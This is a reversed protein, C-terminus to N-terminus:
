RWSQEFEAKVDPKTFIGKLATTKMIAGPKEVGRITMCMHVGELHCACGLPKCKNMIYDAVQQTLREQLQPRKAYFDLIRALKSIGLLEKDPIYAIWAKGIFPVFHHSCTSAFPIEDSHVMQDFGEDNPFVTVKPENDPNLGSFLENCYMKAVRKPTDILHPDNKNLGLGLIILKVGEEVKKQNM